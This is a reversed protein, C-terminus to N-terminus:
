AIEEPWLMEHPIRGEPNETSVLECDHWWAPYKARENKLGHECYSRLRWLPITLVHRLGRYVTFRRRPRGEYPIFGVSPDYDKFRTVEWHFSWAGIYVAGADEAYWQAFVFMKRSM